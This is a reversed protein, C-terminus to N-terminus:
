QTSRDLLAIAEDLDGCVPIGNPINDLAVGCDQGVKTSDIVALIKYSESYRVLGNATKGDIKGFNSECYVIATQQENPKYHPRLKLGKNPFEVVSM